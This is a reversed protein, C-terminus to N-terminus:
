GAPSRWRTMWRIATWWSSRTFADDGDPQGPAGPGAKEGPRRRAMPARAPTTQEPAAGALDLGAPAARRDPASARARAAVKRDKRRAAARAAASGAPLPLDAAGAPGEGPGAAARDLLATM